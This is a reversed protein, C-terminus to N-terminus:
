NIAKEVIQPTPIEMITNMVKTRTDALNQQFVKENQLENKYFRRSYQIAKLGKGDSSKEYKFVNFELM